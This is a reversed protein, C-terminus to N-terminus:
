VEVFILMRKLLDIGQFGFELGFYLTTNLDFLNWHHALARMTGGELHYGARNQVHIDADDKCTARDKYKWFTMRLQGYCIYQLLANLVLRRTM